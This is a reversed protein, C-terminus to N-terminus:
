CFIEESFTDWVLISIVLPWRQELIDIDGGDDDDDGDDGDSHEAWPCTSSQLRLFRLQLEVLPLDEVTFEPVLPASKGPISYTRYSGPAKRLDLICYSNQQFQQPGWRNTMSM